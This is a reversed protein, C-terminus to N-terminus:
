GQNHAASYSKEIIKFSHETVNPKDNFVHKKGYFGVSELNGRDAKLRKHNIEAENEKKGYAANDNGEKEQSFFFFKKGICYQHDTEKNWKKESLGVKESKEHWKL